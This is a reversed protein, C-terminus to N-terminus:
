FLMQPPYTRNIIANNLLEGSVKEDKLENATPEIGFSGILSILSGSCRYKGYLVGLVIM